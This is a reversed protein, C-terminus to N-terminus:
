TAIRKAWLAATYRIKEEDLTLLEGNNLLQKGAVWLHTTARSSDTYVLQSISDFLPLQALNSLDVAQMDAWKGVELSGTVEDLGLAKAGGLTAMYLAEKAKLASADQAVAKALLAATKMEGQINLDNNSAAGDTGLGLNVGAKLLKDVPCFGSALKLNSEPCHVVSAGTKQLLSIDTDTIQTMHVCSVRETLFGLNALRQSPRCGYKEISQAVEQATEHLHIQVPTDLQDALTAITKLPEDSLTYPAHPGFGIKILDHAKYSDHLAIIKDIAIQASQAYNTPFDLVTTFSAHRMGAKLASQICSDSYFYMDAFTTTGCKIMEALALESGARVFDADVWKNEAPWIHENLWTMLPLDDAFGRLLSMASHGHANVYGPLLAHRPLEFSHKAELSSSAPEIAAIRGDKIFVSHKELVMQSQTASPNMSILWRLNLRLDYIM